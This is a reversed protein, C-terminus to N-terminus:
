HRPQTLGCVYMIHLSCFRLIFTGHCKAYHGEAYRWEAYRWEAYRWEACHWEAHHWESVLIVSQMIVSLNHCVVFSIGLQVFKVLISLAAKSFTM